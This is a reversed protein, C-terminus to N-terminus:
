VPKPALQRSRTPFTEEDPVVQEVWDILERNIILTDVRTERRQGQFLYGIRADTIPVMTKRRRLAEVPDAGPLAHFFGRVEYAGMKIALHQPTTRNRRAADGRPGAAHVMFIEDRLAVIEEVTLPEGDDFREVTVGALVYEDHDNLMDTLRDADLVAEGSLVCDEGYAVFKVLRADDGTPLAPADVSHSFGFSLRRPLRNM